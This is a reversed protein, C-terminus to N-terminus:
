WTSVILQEPIPEGWGMESTARKQDLLVRIGARIEAPAVADVLEDFRVPPIGRESEIYRIALVARLVYFYKKLRVQGEFLYARANHKAMHSYHYCLATPNFRQPALQRLSEAADGRELYRIPSNLWELLAGNTRAFLQLAKRLDWGSCDIDDEIPCEIVDRQREVDFSLYWDRKHVYVFRVDYDSDPSAFGWARSTKQAQNGGGCYRTPCCPRGLCSALVGRHWRVGGLAVEPNAIPGIERGSSHWGVRGFRALYGTRESSGRDRDSTGVYRWTRRFPRSRCEENSRGGQGHGETTGGSERGVAGCRPAVRHLRLKRTLGLVRQALVRSDGLSAACGSAWPSTVISPPVIVGRKTLEREAEIWLLRLEKERQTEAVSHAGSAAAPNRAGTPFATCADAPVDPGVQGVELDPRLSRSPAPGPASGRAGWGTGVVDLVRRWTPNADGPAVKSAAVPGAGRGSQAM